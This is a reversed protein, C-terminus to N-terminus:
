AVTCCHTEVLKLLRELAYPKKLVGAAGAPASEAMASTIIVPPPRTPELALADMLQWGNMVPMMLDLLMVCPPHPRRLATLAEQGNGAEAVEYGEDVLVDRVAARLEEDDEVILIFKGVPGTQTTRGGPALKRAANASYEVM